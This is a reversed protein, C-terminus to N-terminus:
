KRPAFAYAVVPQDTTCIRCNLLKTISATSRLTLGARDEPMEGLRAPCACNRQNLPNL